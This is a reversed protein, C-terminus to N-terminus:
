KEDPRLYHNLTYYIDRHAQTFKTEFLDKDLTCYTPDKMESQLHSVIDDEDDFFKTEIHWGAIQYMRILAKEETICCYHKCYKGTQYYYPLQIQVTEVTVPVQHKIELTTM